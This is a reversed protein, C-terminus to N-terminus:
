VSGIWDFGEISDSTVRFPDRIRPVCFQTLIEPPLLSIPALENRLSKLGLITSTNDVVCIRKRLMKRALRYYGVFSPAFDDDDDTDVQTSKLRRIERDILNSDILGHERLASVNRSDVLFDDDKARLKPFKFPM